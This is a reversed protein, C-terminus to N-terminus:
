PDSSATDNWRRFLSVNEDGNYPHLFQPECFMIVPRFNCLKDFPHSMMQARAPRWAKGQLRRM